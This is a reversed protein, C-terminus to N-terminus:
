ASKKRPNFVAYHRVDANKDVTRFVSVWGFHRLYMAKGSEPLAVNEVRVHEGQHESVTRNKELAIMFSLGQDRLFRLNEVGSYWSDATVIAPALGWGLVESVMEQFLDNKTKGEAKDVVRFNVPVRMGGIEGYFLTVLNVGKVARGHLGSWFYGVLETKGEQSHPKDLVTDDVSLAGGELVILPRMEEFLDGPGFEERNLFRNAADHAFEGGSVESLRVCGASQAEALLFATYHELTCLATSPKTLTRM